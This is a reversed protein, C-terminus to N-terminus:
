ALENISNQFDEIRDDALLAELKEFSEALHIKPEDVQYFEQVIESNTEYTRL